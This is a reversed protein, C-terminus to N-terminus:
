RDHLGVFVMRALDRLTAAEAALGPDLEVEFDKQMAMLLLVRKRMVSTSGTCEQSTDVDELLRRDLKAAQAVSMGTLEDLRDEGDDELLYKALVYRRLCGHLEEVTKAAKIAPVQERAAARSALLKEKLDPNM